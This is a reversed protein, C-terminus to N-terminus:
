SVLFSQRSGTLASDVVDDLSGLSDLAFPPEEDPEEPELGSPVEVLVFVDEEEEEVFDVSEPPAMAPMTIPVRAKSERMPAARKRM